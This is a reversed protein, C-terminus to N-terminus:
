WGFTGRLQYHRINSIVENGHIDGYMDHVYPERELIDIKEFEEKDCLREVYDLDRVVHSPLNNYGKYVDFTWYRDHTEFKPPIVPEGQRCSIYPPILHRTFLQGTECKEAEPLIKAENCAMRAKYFRRESQAGISLIRPRNEPMAPILFDKEEDLLVLGPNTDHMLLHAAIYRMVQDRGRGGEGVFSNYLNPNAGILKEVDTVLDESPLANDELEVGKLKPDFQNGFVLSRAFIVNADRSLYRIHQRAQNADIGNIAEAAKIPFVIQVQAEPLYHEQLYLASAYYGISRIPYAEGTVGLCVRITTDAGQDAIIERTTNIDSKGVGELYLRDDAMLEKELKKM